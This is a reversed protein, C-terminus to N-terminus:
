NPQKGKGDEGPLNGTKGCLNLPLTSNKKVHACIPSIAVLQAKLNEIEQKWADSQPKLTEKMQTYENQVAELEEAKTKQEEKCIDINEKMKDMGPGMAAIAAELNQWDKKGQDLRREFQEKFPILNSMRGDLAKMANPLRDSDNNMMIFVQSQSLIIMVLGMTVLTCIITVIWLFRM